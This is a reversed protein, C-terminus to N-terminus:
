AMGMLLVNFISQANLVILNRELKLFDAVVKALIDGEVEREHREVGLEEDGDSANPDQLKHQVPLFEIKPKPQYSCQTCSKLM